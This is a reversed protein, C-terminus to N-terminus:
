DDIPRGSRVITVRAATCEIIDVLEGARARGPRIRWVAVRSSPGGGEARRGREAM